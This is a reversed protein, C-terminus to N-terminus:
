EVRQWPMNEFIFFIYSASDFLSIQHKSYFYCVLDICLLICLHRTKSNSSQKPLLLAVTGTLEFPYYRLLASYLSLSRARASRRLAARTGAFRFIRGLDRLRIRHFSVTFISELLFLAARLEQTEETSRNSNTGSEHERDIRRPRVPEEGETSGDIHKM